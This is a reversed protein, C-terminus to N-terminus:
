SVGDRSLGKITQCDRRLLAHNRPHPRRTRKAYMTAGASQLERYVAPTLKALTQGSGARSAPFIETIESGFCNGM